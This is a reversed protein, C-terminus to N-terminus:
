YFRIRGLIHGIHSESYVSLVSILILIQPMVHMNKLVLNWPDKM